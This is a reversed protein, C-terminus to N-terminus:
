AEKPLHKDAVVKEKELFRALAASLTAFTSGQVYFPRMRNGPMLAGDETFRDEGAWSIAIAPTARDKGNKFRGYIALSEKDAVVRWGLAQMRGIVPELSMAISATATYAIDVPDSGDARKRAPKHERAKEVLPSGVVMAKILDPDDSGSALNTIDGVILGAIHKCFAGSQRGAPCNCFAKFGEGEGEMIIRYPEKASGNVYYKM